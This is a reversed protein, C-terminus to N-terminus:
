ENIYLTFRKDNKEAILGVGKKYYEVHEGNQFKVVLLNRYIKGKPSKFSKTRSIITGLGVKEGIKANFYLKPMHKKTYENYFYVTDNSIAIFESINHDKNKKNFAYYTKGAIDIPYKFSVKTDKGMWKYNVEKNLVIPLYSDESQSFLQSTFLIIFLLLIKRM